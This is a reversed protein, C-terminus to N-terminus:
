YTQAQLKINVNKTLLHPSLLNHFAHYCAYAVGRLTGPTGTRVRIDFGGIINGYNYVSFKSCRAQFLANYVFATFCTLLKILNSGGM